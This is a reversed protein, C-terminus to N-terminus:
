SLPMKWFLGAHQFGDRGTNNMTLGKISHGNGQFMGSYSICSENSVGLPLSLGSSSFDLDDRLAIDYYITTAGTASSFVKILANATHVNFFGACTIFLGWVVTALM